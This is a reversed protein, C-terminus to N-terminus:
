GRVGNVALSKNKFGEGTHNPASTVSDALGDPQVIPAASSKPATGSLLLMVAAAKTKGSKSSSSVCHIFFVLSLILKSIKQLIPFVNM